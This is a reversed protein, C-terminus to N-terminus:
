LVNFHKMLEGNDISHQESALYLTYKITPISLFSPSHIIWATHHKCGTYDCQLHLCKYYLTIIRWPLSLSRLFPSLQFFSTRFLRRGKHTQLFSYTFFSSISSRPPFLSPFDITLPSRHATSCILCLIASRLSPFKSPFQPSSFHLWPSLYASATAKLLFYTENPLGKLISFSLLLIYDPIQFSWQPDQTPRPAPSAQSLSGTM